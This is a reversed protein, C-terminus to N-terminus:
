GVVKMIYEGDGGGYNEIMFRGNENEYLGMRESVMKILKCGEVSGDVMEVYEVVEINKIKM